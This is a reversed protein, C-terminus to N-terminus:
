IEDNALLSVYHARPLNYLFLKGRNWSDLALSIIHLMLITENAVHCTSAHSLKLFVGPHFYRAFIFSPATYLTSIHSSIEVHSLFPFGDM